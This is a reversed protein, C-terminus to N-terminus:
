HRNDKEHGSSEHGEHSRTSPASKAPRAPAAHQAAPQQGRMPNVQAGRYTGQQGGYAPRQMTQTQIGGNGAGRNQTPQTAAGRNFSGNPQQGYTQGNRNFSGAQQAQTQGGRNEVNGGNNFTSNGRNYTNGGSNFTNGGRNITNGGRNITVNNFSSRGGFQSAQQQNFARAQSSRDFRGYDGHNVVTVSRSIYTNHNYVITRSGWNPGWNHYGWSFHTFAGIAIGVGFGIALGAGFIVGRPPGYYAYRPYAAIPAGYVIWPNYYPVYVVEPSVPAIVIDGPEYVVSLQSTSRLNGAQYARQRMAQVAGLVDQPQNYYANGLQTTWDMNQSLDSLVRPFAVLSKISPDWPQTNALSALQEPPYNGSQQVFQEASVVQAPYTAAALVQAVLSDPYLAIPAVLQDLQDPGLPQYNSLPQQQDDPPPPPGDYGQQQAMATGLSLPLMAMALVGATVQQSYRMWSANRTGAARQRFITIRTKETSKGCIGKLKNM